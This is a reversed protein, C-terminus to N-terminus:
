QPIFLATIENQIENASYLTYTVGSFNREAATQQYQADMQVQAIKLYALLQKLEQTYLALETKLQDLPLQNFGAPTFEDSKFTGDNQITGAKDLLNQVLLVTFRAQVYGDLIVKDQLKSPEKASALNTLAIEQYALVRMAGALKEGDAAVASTGFAALVSLILVNKM